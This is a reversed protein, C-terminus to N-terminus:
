PLPCSGCRRHDDIARVQAGKVSETLLVDLQRGIDGVLVRDRLEHLMAVSSVHIWVHLHNGERFLGPPGNAGAVGPEEDAVIAQLQRGSAAIADEVAGDDKAM